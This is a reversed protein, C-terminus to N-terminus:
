LIMIDRTICLSIVNFSINTGEKDGAEEDTSGGYPDEEEEEEEEERNQKVKIRYCHCHCRLWEIPYMPEM